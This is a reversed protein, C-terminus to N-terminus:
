SKQFHHWGKDKISILKGNKQFFVGKGKMVYGIEYLKIQNKKQM